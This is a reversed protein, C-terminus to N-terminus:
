KHNKSFYYQFVGRVSGIENLKELAEETSVPFKEQIMRVARELLKQNSLQMDVMQNDQVHGLQIMVSTSIMNLALKQATGAKMRTSGSVFEPGTVLVVPFDAVKELPSDPNGSICATTIGMKQCEALGNVVYPTTGSASIGIVMDLLGVQHNSLDLWAQKTQDEAFEVAKRIAQDGGAILGIVRDHSVGFTPPCESADVIGLRGSTGAGLYFLRGGARMLTVTKEILKELQPIAMELVYPVSQDERNIHELLERVPMNELNHYRSKKETIREMPEFFACTLKDQM